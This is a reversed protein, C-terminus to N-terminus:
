RKTRLRGQMLLSVVIAAVILARLVAVAWSSLGLWRHYPSGYTHDLAFFALCLGAAVAAFILVWLRREVPKLARPEGAPPGSGRLAYIIAAVVITLGVLSSLGQLLVAGTVLHNRVLLMPDSLEPVMRVGRAGEHTFADWALHVVAGGLLGGAALLWQLPSGWSAPAAYPRWRRYASDPLVSVLPAKMLRQFVWYSLM